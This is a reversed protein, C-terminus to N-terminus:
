KRVTLEAKQIEKFLTKPRQKFKNFQTPQLIFFVDEVSYNNKILKISLKYILDSRDIDNHKRYEEQSM